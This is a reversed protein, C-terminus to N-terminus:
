GRLVEPLEGGEALWREVDAVQEDSWTLCRPWVQLDLPAPALDDSAEDERAKEAWVIARGMNDVRWPEPGHHDIRWASCRCREIAASGHRLPYRSAAKEAVHEHRGAADAVAVRRWYWAWAAARAEHETAHSSVFTSDERGVWVNWGRIDGCLASVFHAVLMGPPDRRPEHHAWAVAIVEGAAGEGTWARGDPSTCVWYPANEFAAQRNELRYGPPPKSRDLRAVQERKCTKETM